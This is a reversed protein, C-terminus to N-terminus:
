SLLVLVALCSPRGVSRGLWGSFGGQVEGISLEMGLGYWSIFLRAEQWSALGCVGLIELECLGLSWAM